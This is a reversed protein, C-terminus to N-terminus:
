LPTYFPLSPAPTRNPLVTDRTEARLRCDVRGEEQGHSETDGLPMGKQGEPQSDNIQGRLTAEIQPPSGQIPESTGNRM